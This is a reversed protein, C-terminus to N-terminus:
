DLTTVSIVSSLKDAETKLFDGALHTYERTQRIDSHGLIQQLASESIGAVISATGFSHRMLHNYVRKDIGARVASSKLSKKINTYPKKTRKNVIVYDEIKKGECYEKLKDAVIKFAIPVTRTKNGKGTVHMTNNGFDIERKRLYCAENRRLGGLLMLMTLLYQDDGVKRQEVLLPAIENLSLVITSKKTQQNKPFSHPLDGINIKEIDKCWRMFARFHNLEIQITRKSVTKTDRRCRIKYEEDTEARSDHVRDTRHKRQKPVIKTALRLAKYPEYDRSQLYAIYKKGIYPLMNSLAAQCSEHTREAQNTKHWELFDQLKDMVRPNSNTRSTKGQAAHDAAQAELKTGQFLENDQPKDKGHGHSVVIYWYPAEGPKLNKNKTPHYRIAV